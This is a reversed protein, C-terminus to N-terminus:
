KNKNKDAVKSCWYIFESDTLKGKMINVIKHVWQLNGEIYGIKSDIRDLSATFNERDRVRDGFRIEVGTLACKGDQKLFLDWMYALDISIPFGREKAGDKIRHWYQASIEGCGKWLKSKSGIKHISEGCTTSFGRTLNQNKYYKLEGGCDCSCEWYSVSDIIKFKGTTSLCGFKRGTLDAIRGCCIGGNKRKFISAYRITRERKCETCRINVISERSPIKYEVISLLIAGNVTKGIFTDINKKKM